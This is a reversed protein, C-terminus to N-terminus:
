ILSSPLSERYRVVGRQLSEVHDWGEDLWGIGQMSQVFKAQRQVAASIDMPDWVTTEFSSRADEGAM